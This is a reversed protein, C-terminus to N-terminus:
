PLRYKKLYDIIWEPEPIPAKPNFAIYTAVSSLSQWFLIAMAEANGPRIQGRLQGDTIISISKKLIAPEITKASTAQATFAVMKATFADQQMMTFYHTAITEFFKLSDTGDLKSLAAPTEVGIKILEDRLAAKSEFYHFMLGISMDVKQAIDKITTESFGKSIFLDLAAELIEVRRKEKQQQRSTM